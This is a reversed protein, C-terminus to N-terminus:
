LMEPMIATQSSTTPQADMQALTMTVDEKSDAKADMESAADGDLDVAAEAADESCAEKGMFTEPRHSELMEVDGAHAGQDISETLQMSDRNAPVLMYKSTPEDDPLPTVPQTGSVDGIHIQTVPLEDAVEVIAPVFAPKTQHAYSSSSNRQQVVTTSAAQEANAINDIKEAMVTDNVGAADPAVVVAEPEPVPTPKQRCPCPSLEEAVFEYTRGIPALCSQEVCIRRIYEDVLQKVRTRDKMPFHGNANAVFCFDTMASSNVVNFHQCVKAALVTPLAASVSKIAKSRIVLKKPYWYQQPAREVHVEPSYEEAKQLTAEEELFSSACSAAASEGWFKKILDEKVSPDTDQEESCMWENNKLDCFSDKPCAHSGNGCVAYGREVCKFVSSSTEACYQSTACCKGNPCQTLPLECVYTAPPEPTAHSGSSIERGNTVCTKTEGDCEYGNPCCGEFESCCVANEFPCCAFIESDADADFGLSCCTDFAGCVSGDACELEGLGDLPHVASGKSSAADGVVEGLPNRCVQADNDCTSDSPCCGGFSCCVGNEHPCCASMPGEETQLLCCTEHKFCCGGDGPCTQEDDWCEEVDWEAEPSHSSDSTLMPSVDTENNPHRCVREKNDCTTGSACCGGGECCVAHTQPCCGVQGFGKDCCTASRPCCMGQSCLREDTYCKGPASVGNATPSSPPATSKQSALYPYTEGTKAKCAKQDPDCEHGEACCGGDSCCIGEMYSCCSMSGDPRACCTSGLPCCTDDTCKTEGVCVEKQTHPAHPRPTTDRTFKMPVPASAANLRCSSGAVDCEFSAPCCGLGGACCTGNVFDCCGYKGSGLDCCTGPWKCSEGNPCQTETAESRAPTNRPTAKMSIRLEQGDPSVAVCESKGVDCKHGNPCCGAGDSCCVGNTFPCCGFFGDQLVCCQNGEGCCSRDPCSQKSGCHSEVKDQSIKEVATSSEQKVCAFKENDCTFGERCCGVGGCCLGSEHPCCGYSGDHLLCCKQSKACCSDDPCTVKRVGCVGETPNAGPLRTPNLVIVEESKAVKDEESTQDNIYSPLCRKNETDCKFTEQCAYQNKDSKENCCAANKAKVCKFASAKPEGPITDLTREYSMKKVDQSVQCCTEDVGCCTNDGCQTEEDTCVPLFEVENTWYSYFGDLCSCLSPSPFPGSVLITQDVGVAMQRISDNLSLFDPDLTFSPGSVRGSQGHKRSGWSAVKGDAMLTIMHAVGAAIQRPKQGQFYVKEFPSPYGNSGWLFVREDQTVVGTFDNGAAVQCVNRRLRAVQMPRKQQVGFNGLGLQGAAGDGWTYLDGSRTVAVVHKSGMAVQCIKAGSARLSEVLYPKKHSRTSGDGMEGSQGAGWIFLKGDDSIAATRNAAANVFRINQRALSVVEVPSASFKMLTTEDGGFGLQGDSNLGWTFVKGHSTLAVFHSHGLSAMVIRNGELGTVLTPNEAKVGDGFGFNGTADVHSGTLYLKGDCTVFFSNSESVGTNTICTKGLSGGIETPTLVEPESQLLQHNENKGFSFLKTEAAGQVCAVVVALAAVVVSRAYRM